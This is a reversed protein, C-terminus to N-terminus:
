FDKWSGAVRIYRSTNNKLTSLQTKDYSIKLDGTASISGESILSGNINGAGTKNKFSKTTYIIGNINSNTDNIEIEGDVILLIPNSSSGLTIPSDIVLKGPSGGSNSTEIWIMQSIPDENNDLLDSGTCGNSCDIVKSKNKIRQKNEAFFNQFFDNNNLSALDNDKEYVGTGGDLNGDQSIVDINAPSGGVNTQTIGGSWTAKPLEDTSSNTKNSISVNNGIQIKGKAVVPTPPTYAMLSVPLISQTIIQNPSNSQNDGSFGSISIDIMKPNLANKTFEVSYTGINQTNSTSGGHSLTPLNIGANVFSDSTGTAGNATIRDVFAVNLQAMIADLGAQAAEFGQKTRYHNSSIKQETVTVQASYISMLGLTVLIVLSMMLTVGGFQKHNLSIYNM